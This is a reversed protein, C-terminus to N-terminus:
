RPRGRAGPEMQEYRRLAESVEGAAEVIVHRLWVHRPDEQRRAHWVLSMAFSPLDLPPAVTALRETGAMAWAVSVPLTVVLDSRAAIEVAALFQPVRVAVRRRRGIKELAVDLPARGEGTVAVVVHGLRLYADLDLAAAAPHGARLLTVFHERYLQRRLIGAPADPILGVVADLEGRELAGLATPTPSVVDVDLGPAEGSIRALVPPLLSVAQLDPMAVRLRGTATAPDFARAQLVEGASDLTRALVPGIREARATLVYGERSDVLLADGLLARLRGLARSAAPQSMGLRAAARTVSREELLAQLVVLLNLDVGRLNVERM